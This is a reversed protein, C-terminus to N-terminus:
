VMENAGMGVSFNVNRAGIGDMNEVLIQVGEEDMDSDLNGADDDFASKENQNAGDFAAM